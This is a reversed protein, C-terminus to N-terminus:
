QNALGLAQKLLPMDVMAPVFYQMFTLLCSGSHAVLPIGGEAKPLHGEPMKCLQPKNFDKGSEQFYITIKM